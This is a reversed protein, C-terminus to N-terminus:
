RTRRVLMIGRRRAARAVPWARSHRLQRLVRALGIRAVLSAGSPVTLVADAVHRLVEPDSSAVIVSRGGLQLVAYQRVDRMARIRAQCRAGPGRTPMALSAGQPVAAIQRALRRCSPVLATDLWVTGTPFLALWTAHDTPLARM